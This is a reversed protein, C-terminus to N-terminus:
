VIVNAKMENNMDDVMTKFANCYPSQITKFHEWDRANVFMLVREQKYENVRTGIEHFGFSRYMRTLHKEVEIVGFDIGDRINKDYVFNMLTVIAKTNRCEKKLMMRSSVSIRYKEQLPIPIALRNIEPDNVSPYRLRVTGVLNDNDYLCVHFATDDYEDKLIKQENDHHIFTKGLEEIYISYRFAFIEKLEESATVIKVRPM